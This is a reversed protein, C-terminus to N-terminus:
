KDKKKDSEEVKKPEEVRFTAIGAVEKPKAAETLEKTKSDMLAKNLDEVTEPITDGKAFAIRYTAPNNAGNSFDKRHNSEEEKHYINGDGHFWIKDFAKVAARIQPINNEHTKFM